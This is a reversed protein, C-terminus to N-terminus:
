GSCAQCWAADRGAKRLGAAEGAARGPLRCCAVPCAAWRWTEQNSTSSMRSQSRVWQASYMTVKKLSLPRACRPLLRSLQIPPPPPAPPATLAPVKLSCGPHAYRQNGRRFHWDLLAAHLRERLAPHAWATSAQLAGGELGLAAFRQQLVALTDNVQPHAPPLMCSSGKYAGVGLMPDANPLAWRARQSFCSCTGGAAVSPASM